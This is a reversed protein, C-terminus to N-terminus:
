RDRSLAIWVPSQCNWVTFNHHTQKEYTNKHQSLRIKRCSLNAGESEKPRSALESWENTRWSQENVVTEARILRGCSRSRGQLWLRSRLDAEHLQAIKGKRGDKRLGARPQLHDGE